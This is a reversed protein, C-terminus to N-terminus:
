TEHNMDTKSKGFIGTLLNGGPTENLAKALGGKKEILQFLQWTHQVTTESLQDISTQRTQGTVPDIWKQLQRTAQSDRPPWFLPYFLNCLNKYPSGPLIGLTKVLLKWHLQDYMGQFRCHLKLAKEAVPRPLEGAFLLILCDVLTNTTITDSVLADMREAPPTAGDQVLLVDIDTELRYHRAINNLHSISFVYPHFIMDAQMHSIVGLLCALMGEPIGDNFSEDAKIIPEFSNGAADHFRQGLQLAMASDPGHFLHLLTDPLVAGALFLNHHKNIIRSLHGNTDLELLSREALIWHTLEKPM